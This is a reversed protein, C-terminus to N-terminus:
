HRACISALPEPLPLLRHAGVHQGADADQLGIRPQDDSTMLVDLIAAPRGAEAASDQDVGALRVAALGVGFVDGVELIVVDADLQRRELLHLEAADDARDGDRVAHLFM